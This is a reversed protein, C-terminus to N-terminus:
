TCVLRGIELWSADMEQGWVMRHLLCWVQSGASLTDVLWDIEKKHAIMDIMSDGTKNTIGGTKKPWLTAVDEGALNTRPEWGLPSRRYSVVPELRLRKMASTRASPPFRFNQDGPFYLQKEVFVWIGQTKGSQWLYETPWGSYNFRNLCGFFFPLLLQNGEVHLSNQLM